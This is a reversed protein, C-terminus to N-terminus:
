QTLATVGDCNVESAILQYFDERGRGISKEEGVLFYYFNIYNFEYKNNM